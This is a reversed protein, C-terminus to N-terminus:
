VLSQRKLEAHTLDLVRAAIAIIDDIEEHTVVLPPALMMTDYTARMVLGERFSIDRCILGVKGDGPFRSRAAKNPTLELAGILGVMRAEGVLPHEALAQWRVQLYPGVDERVREVLKEGKIIALNALAAASAGPHGSYTYGHNFDDEHGVIVEAVRDGVLVGGLPFYGSTIGKAITMLDPKIGFYQSGFWEGTRGFGCIVEDAVLLVDRERCIRQVEPWYTSPPVIVGGAGQIPEGIFAAVKDAGIRDIEEGVQRAAWLGFEEPGMNAGEGWWYPQAVHVVGPIPLGGQEHMHKMGGLSAGGITSGHYGNKRAIFTSKEPRGQIAWFHRVLRIITDNAESGSSTYFVRSFGEPALDALERSLEAVAPHTTKFFTNYYDLQRLQASIADIIEARGHGVNVNWLGSMGDIIRHGESDWIYIGEARTIVRAGQRNLSQTDTFPHLHHAADLAQWEATTRTARTNTM